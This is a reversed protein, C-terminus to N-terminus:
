LRSKFVVLVLEAVNRFVAREGFMTKWNRKMEPDYFPHVRSALKNLLRRGLTCQSLQIPEWQKHIRRHLSNTTRLRQLNVEMLAEMNFQPQNLELLNCLVSIAVRPNPVLLDISGKNVGQNLLHINIVIITGVAKTNILQLRHLLRAETIVKFLFQLEPSKTPLTITNPLEEKSTVMTIVQCIGSCIIIVMPEIIIVKLHTIFRRPQM